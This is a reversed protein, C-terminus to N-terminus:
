PPLRPQVKRPAHLARGQLFPADPRAGLYPRDAPNADVYTYDGDNIGLNRAAEPNIHIQHEGVGPARKDTRHPDGFNSDYIIHWDV